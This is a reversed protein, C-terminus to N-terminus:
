MERQIPRGIAALVEERSRSQREPAVPLQVSEVVRASLRAQGLGAAYEGAEVGAELLWRSVDEDHEAPYALAITWPYRSGECVALTLRARCPLGRQAALCRIHEFDRRAAQEDRSHFAMGAEAGLREPRVGKLEMTGDPHARVIRYAQAAAYAPSELLMAVEDATYGVAAQGALDVVFLGAYREPHELRPLRM